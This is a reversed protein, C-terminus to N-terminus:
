AIVRVRRSVRQWSRDGTLISDAELVEGTAIVLADPLRLNHRRGSLRAAAIAIPEDLAAVRLDLLQIKARAEELKGARSPIVLTEALASAPIVLEEGAVREFAQLSSRHLKDASDLLGIVLSADLVILAM